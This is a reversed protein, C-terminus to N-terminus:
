ICPCSHFLMKRTLEFAESKRLDVAAVLLLVEMTPDVALKMLRILSGNVFAWCGGNTEVAISELLSAGSISEGRGSDFGDFHDSHAVGPSWSKRAASCCHRFCSKKLGALQRTTFGREFNLFSFDELPTMM